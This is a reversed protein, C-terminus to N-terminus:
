GLFYKSMTSRVLEVNAGEASSTTCTRWKGKSDTLGNQRRLDYYRKRIQKIRESVAIGDFDVDRESKPLHDFVLEALQTASEVKTSASPKPHGHNRWLIQSHKPCKQLLDLLKLSLAENNSFWDISRSPTPKSGSPPPM